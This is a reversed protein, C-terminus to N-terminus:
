NDTSPFIALKRWEGEDRNALVHGQYLSTATYLPASHLDGHWIQRRAVWGGGQFCGRSVLGPVGELGM